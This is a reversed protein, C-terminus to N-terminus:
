YHWKGDRLDLDSPSTILGSSGPSFDFVLQGIGNVSIATGRALSFDLAYGAYNESTLAGPPTSSDPSPPSSPDLSFNVKAEGTKLQFNWLENFMELLSNSAGSQEVFGENLVSSSTDFAIANLSSNNFQLQTSPVSVITEATSNNLGTLENSTLGYADLFQTVGEIQDGSVLNNLILSNTYLNEGGNGNMASTNAGQAVVAWGWGYVETGPESVTSPITEILGLGAAENYTIQNVVFSSSMLWGEPLTAAGIAESSPQGLAVIGAGDPNSDTQLQAWFEITYAATPIGPTGVLNTSAIEQSTNIRYEGGSGTQFSTTIATITTGEVIGPGSILDGIHLTGQTVASVTLTNGSISGTFSSVGIDPTAILTGADVGEAYNVSISLTGTGTTADFDGLDTITTNASIGAGTIVDGVQPTGQSLSTITLTSQNIFGTFIKIENAADEQDSAPVNRLIQGILRNNSGLGTSLTGSGDLNQVATAQSKPLAGIISFSLGTDSAITQTNSSSQASGINISNAGSQLQAFDLFLYPEDNLVSEKYPTRVDQSWSITPTFVFSGLTQVQPVSAISIDSIGLGVNAQPNWPIEEITSNGADDSFLADWTLESGTRSTASPNIWGTKIVAQVPNSAPASSGFNEVVGQIADISTESWAIWTLEQGPNFPDAVNFAHLNDITWGDNKYLSEIDPAAWSTDNQIRFNIRQSGYVSQMYSQFSASRDDPNSLPVVPTSAEVWAVITTPGANPIKATTPSSAASFIINPNTYIEDITLAASDISALQELNSSGEKTFGNLYIIEHGSGNKNSPALYTVRNQVPWSGMSEYLPVQDSLGASLYVGTAVGGAQASFQEEETFNNVALSQSSVSFTPPAADTPLASQVAEPLNLQISYGSSAGSVGTFLIPQSLDVRQIIGGSLSVTATVGPNLLPIEQITENTGSQGPPTYTLSVGVDSYIYSSNNTASPSQIEDEKNEPNYIPYIIDSPQSAPDVAILQISQISATSLPSNIGAALTILPLNAFPNGLQNEALSELTPAKAIGTSFVDLLLAYSTSSDASSVEPLALYSGSRTIKFTNAQIEGSAVTFSAQAASEVTGSLTVGLITVNEYEGDKLDQGSNLLTVPPADSNALSILVLPATQTGIPQGALQQTSTNSSAPTYINSAASPAYVLPYDQGTQEAQTPNSSSPDGGNTHSTTEQKSEHSGEQIYDSF